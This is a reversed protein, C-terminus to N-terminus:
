PNFTLQENFDNCKIRLPVDMDRDFNWTICEITPSMESFGFMKVEHHHSIFLWLM